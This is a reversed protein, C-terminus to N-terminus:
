MSSETVVQEQQRKQTLDSVKKIKAGLEASPNSQYESSLKSYEQSLEETTMKEINQEGTKEATSEPTLQEPTPKEPATPQEPTPQEPTPKEPATPQEPTPQEPTPQEPATPQEPTPQEPTPKEPTPQEPTPQEPTPKEPATSVIEQEETIPSEEIESPASIQSLRYAPCPVGISKTTMFFVPFLEEYILHLVHPINNEDKELIKAREAGNGSIEVTGDVALRVNKPESLLVIGYKLKNKDEKNEIEEISVEINYKLFDFHGEKNKSIALSNIAVQTDV